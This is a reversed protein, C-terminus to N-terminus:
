FIHILGNSKYASTFIDELKKMLDLLAESVNNHLEEHEDFYRFAKGIYGCYESSFDGDCDSHNTFAEIGWNVERDDTKIRGLLDRCAHVGRYSMHVDALAVPVYMCFAAGM